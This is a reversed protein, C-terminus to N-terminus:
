EEIKLGFLSIANATTIGAMASAELGKIEAMKECVLVVRSPENRKGRFPVPALYPSDTEILLRELPCIRIVEHPRRANKFTIPGDFGLYFGMDLLIRATEVSGSFCHFVGPVARLRGKAAQQGLISLTDATSERDHVVLPLDLEYAMDLMKEFLAKQVPRPAFDYHYDLGVEGVAVIERGRYQDILEYLQELEEQDSQAAQHPHIGAACVILRPYKQALLLAANSDALDTGPLIIKSIGSYLAANLVEDLDDSFQEDQLHAHTDICIM